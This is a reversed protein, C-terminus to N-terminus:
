VKLFGFLLMVLCAKIHFGRPSPSPKAVGQSLWVAVNYSLGQRPVKLALSLTSVLFGPSTIKRCIDLLCPQAPLLQLHDGLVPSTPSFNDM